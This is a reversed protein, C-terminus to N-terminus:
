IDKKVCIQLISNRNKRLSSSYFGKPCDSGRVGEKYPVDNPPRPLMGPLYRGYMFYSDHHNKHDQIAIPSKIGLRVLAVEYLLDSVGRPYYQWFWSCPLSGKLIIKTKNCSMFQNFSHRNCNNYDFCNRQSVMREHINYEVSGQGDINCQGTDRWLYGWGDKIAESFDCEKPVQQSVDYTMLYDGNFPGGNINNSISNPYIDYFWKPGITNVCKELLDSITTNYTILPMSTAQLVSREYNIYHLSATLMHTTLKTCDNLHITTSYTLLPIM